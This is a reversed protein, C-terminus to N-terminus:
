QLKKLEAAAGADGLDVALRYLRRAEAKDPKGFTGKAHAAALLTVADVNQKAVAAELLRRARVPDKAGGWGELLFLALNASAGVDGAAAAKELLARAAGDDRVGSEGKHLDVALMRMANASGFEAARRLWDVFKARDAPVGLGDRHIVALYLMSDPEGVAAAREFWDRAEGLTKEAAGGGAAARDFLTVGLNFMANPSGFSAAKTWWEIARDASAELGARGRDHLNGMWLAAYASGAEAAARFTRVADLDRDGVLYARGLQNAWRLNSPDAAHAAECAPLAIKVDIGDVPPHSVSRLPDAAAGAAADCLDGKALDPAATPAHAALWNAASEYGAAAAKEYWVRAGAEDVPGVAGALLLQALATMAAANGDDAAQELLGRAKAPERDGGVGNLYLDALSRMAEGDGDAAARQFWLRAQIPDPKVGWGKLMIEGLRRKARTDDGAAAKEYWDRARTNDEPGGLGFYWMEGAQRMAAVDGLGAAKEFLRRATAPDKAGGVGDLHMAALNYMADSSGLASAQEWWKRAAADNKPVGLGRRQINGMWMAAFASKKKAAAEFVRAADPWRQASVLAAGLQDAFRLAGPNAKAAAECAPIARVHAIESPQDLGKVAPAKLPDTAMAALRDCTAAPDEPADMEALLAKADADDLAVARKLWDRAATEDVAGFKGDRLAKALYVMAQPSDHSAAKELMERAGTPDVPGGLGDLKMHALGIMADVGQHRVSRGFWDRAIAYDRPAGGMGMLYYFGLNYMGSASDFSAAKEFWRRAGDFDQPGGIGRQDFLGLGTLGEPDELDAARTMLARGKAPDKPVGVGDAHAWALMVMAGPDGIAEARRLWSTAKDLDKPTGIGHTHIFALNTMAVPVGLMAAKEFWPRAKVYDKQLGGFGRYLLYGVENTAYPSGRGAAAEFVKLAEAYREAKLYSRGLQNALHLDAPAEAVAAECAPIARAVDVTRVPAVRRNRLTDQQDTALRDCRAAATEEVAPRPPTAAAPEAPGAEGAVVPRVAGGATSRPPLSAVKAEGPADGALYLDNVLTSSDWPVQKSGTAQVVDLRVRKIVRSIEVGPTPANKLFAETFPSNRGDGDLAVNGPDTAYVIMSGVSSRIEALGGYASEAARTAGKLSRRLSRAFPNDRCADLVVMTVRDDARMLQMVLDVDVTELRVDDPKEIRADVPILYNHGDVQMGHGSYYFVALSGGELRDRFEKLKEKLGAGDLDLGEVVEFGLRRFMAGVDAADNVPNPLRTQTRYASNGIVLAVRDAAHAVTAGVFLTSALCLRGLLNLM